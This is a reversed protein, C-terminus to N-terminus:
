DVKVDSASALHFDLENIKQTSKGGANRKLKTKLNWVIESLINECVCTKCVVISLFCWFEM